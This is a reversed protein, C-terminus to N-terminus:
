DRIGLGDVLAAMWCTNVQDAIRSVTTPMLTNITTSIHRCRDADAKNAAILADRRAEVEEGYILTLNLHHPRRMPRRLLSCFGTAALRTSLRPHHITKIM